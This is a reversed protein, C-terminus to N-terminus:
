AHLFLSSSHDSQQLQLHLRHHTVVAAALPPQQHQAVVGGEGCSHLSRALGFAVKVLYLHPGQAEEM